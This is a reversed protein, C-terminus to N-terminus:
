ILLQYHLMDESQGDPWHKAEAHTYTFGHAIMAKKSAVNGARHGILLKKLARQRAWELRARYLLRTLGIGRYEKKIYSGVFTAEDPQERNVVIGTTGILEGDPNFLGWFAVFDNFTRSYWVEDPLESETQYKSGFVGPELRLAELRIAKYRHLEDPTFLRISFAEM